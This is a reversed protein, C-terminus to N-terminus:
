DPTASLDGAPGKGEWGERTAAGVNVASARGVAKIRRDVSTAKVAIGGGACIGLVGIREADVYPLTTLYDVASYVDAVRNTPEDLFHPTGESAGQNPRASRSLWSGRTPSVSRTGARYGAGSGRSPAAITKWNVILWRGAHGDRGRWGSRARRRGHMPRTTGWEGSKPPARMH